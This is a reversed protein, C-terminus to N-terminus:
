NIKTESDCSYSTCMYRIQETLENIAFLQALTIDDLSIHLFFSKHKLQLGVKVNFPRSNFGNCLIPISLSKIFTNFPLNIWIFIKIFFFGWKGLPFLLPLLVDSVSDSPSRFFRNYYCVSNYDLSSIACWFYMCNMWKMFIYM